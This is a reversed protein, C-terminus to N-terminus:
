LITVTCVPKGKKTKAMAMKIKVGGCAKLNESTNAVDGGCAEIWELVIRTLVAGGFFCEKENEAFALVPFTVNEKKEDDYITVMDVETLTIGNPYKEIIEETSIKERDSMVESFTTAKKAIAKFMNNTNSM